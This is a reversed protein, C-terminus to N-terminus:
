MPPKTTYPSQQISYRLASRKDALQKLLMKKDKLMQKNDKLSDNVRRMHNLLVRNGGNFKFKLKRSANKEERSLQECKKKLEIIDKQCQESDLRLKKLAAFYKSKQAMTIDASDISKSPKRVPIRRPSAVPSINRRRVLQGGQQNAWTVRRASM